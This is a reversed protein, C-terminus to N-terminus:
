LVSQVFPNWFRALTHSKEKSRSTWVPEFTPSEVPTFRGPCSASLEHGDIVSTLFSHLQAKDADTFAKMAHM